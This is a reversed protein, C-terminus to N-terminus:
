ESNGLICSILGITEDPFQEEIVYNKVVGSSDSVFIKHQFLNIEGDTNKFPYNLEELKSQSITVHANQSNVPLGDTSFNLHHKSAFGTIDIEFTNEPNRLKIDEELGSASIIKEADKRAKQLITGSM